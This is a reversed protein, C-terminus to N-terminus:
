KIADEIDQLKHYVLMNQEFSWPGGEIVKRLDMVHFFIFSYRYGGIDHVEMGEKPRWLSALVNQKAQFNIHKDTLFKGVLVFSEKSEQVGETGVIIGSDEEDEITLKEYLKELNERDYAM